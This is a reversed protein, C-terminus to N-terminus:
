VKQYQGVPGQIGITKLSKERQDESPMIKISESARQGTMNM